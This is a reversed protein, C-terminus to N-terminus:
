DDAIKRLNTSESRHASQTEKVARTVSSWGGRSKGLAGDVNDLAGRADKLAAVMAGLAETAERAPRTLKEVSLIFDFSFAM